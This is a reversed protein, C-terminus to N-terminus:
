LREKKLRAKVMDYVREQPICVSSDNEMEAARRNLEEQEEQLLEYNYDPSQIYLGTEVDTIKDYLASNYLLDLAEQFPLNRDQMILKVLEALLYDTIFTQEKSM